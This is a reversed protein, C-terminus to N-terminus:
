RAKALWNCDTRSVLSEGGYAWTTGDILVEALSHDQGARYHCTYNYNGLPSTFRGNEQSSDATNAGQWVGTLALTGSFGPGYTEDGTTLDISYGVNYICTSSDVSAEFTANTKSVQLASREVTCAAQRARYKTGDLVVGLMYIGSSEFSGSRDFSQYALFASERYGDATETWDLLEAQRNTERNQYKFTPPEASASSVAGITAVLFLASAFTVGAVSRHHSRIM